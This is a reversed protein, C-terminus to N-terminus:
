KWVKKATGLAFSLMGGALVLCSPEVIDLKYVHHALVLNSLCIGGMGIRQLLNDDFKHSLTGIGCLVAVLLLSFISLAAMTLRGIQLPGM